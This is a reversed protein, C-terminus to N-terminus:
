SEVYPHKRLDSASPREDPKMAFCKRIFDDAGPSLVVDNPILPFYQRKVSQVLLGIGDAEHWLRRGALMDLVVFGLSWIDVKENYGIQHAGDSEAQIVEPTTWFVSGQMEARSLIDNVHIDNAKMACKFDCIKIHGSPGILLNDTKLDRHIIGKDHLYELGELVQGTFTRVLGDEFKGYERLLEALSPGAVYEMFMNAFDSTQEFGLCKVINPHDLDKLIDCQLKLIEVASTQMSDDRGGNRHIEVQKVALIEGTTSDMGLYVCGHTGKGILAGRLWKSIPKQQSPSPSPPPESLTNSM